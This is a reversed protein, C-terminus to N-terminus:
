YIRGFFIVQVVCWVFCITPCAYIFQHSLTGVFYVGRLVHVLKNLLILTLLRVSLSFL